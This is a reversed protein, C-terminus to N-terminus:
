EPDRWPPTASNWPWDIITDREVHGDAFLINARDLHIYGKSHHAESEWLVYDGPADALLYLEAPRRLRTLDAQVENINQGDRPPVLRRNLGYPRGAQARQTTPCPFEDEFGMGQNQFTIVQQSGRHYLMLAQQWSIYLTGPGISGQNATTFMAPPLLGNDENYQYMVLYVQRLTSQCSAGNATARAMSLAPMLLAILLAIISVVVLLEILTFGAHSARSRCLRHLRPTASM